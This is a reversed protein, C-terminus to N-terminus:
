DIWIRWFCGLEKHAVLVIGALALFVMEATNICIMVTM